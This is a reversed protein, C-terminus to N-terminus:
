GRRNEDEGERHCSDSRGSHIKASIEGSTARDFDKTTVELNSKLIEIEETLNEVELSKEEFLVELNFKEDLKRQLERSNEGSFILEERLQNNLTKVEEMRIEYDRRVEDILVKLEQRTDFSGSEM